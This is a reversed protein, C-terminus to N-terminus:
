PPWFAKYIFVTAEVNYDYVVGSLNRKIVKNLIHTVHTIDGYAHMFFMLLRLVLAENYVVKTKNCTTIM